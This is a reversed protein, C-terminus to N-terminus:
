VHHCAVLHQNEMEQLVPEEERCQANIPGPCRTHFRCGAPPHAASPVSGRLIIRDHRKKPDIRPVASLLAQTYPHLPNGFVDDVSAAEVIKGLYMIAVHDCIHEIVALDHAIFLYTLGFDQQLDQLLNLIQSQVSADLASVPEDAVIFRPRLILARGIAIRQRQGGSFEHPYRDIHHRELGVTEMVTLIMDERVSRRAINHVMLPEELLSGVTMRPSLSSFPDQFIMQMDRRVERLEKRGLQFIDQDDFCVQGATPRLLRLILRGTTTKGCGSEGVLGLTEGVNVSFSVGDVARV